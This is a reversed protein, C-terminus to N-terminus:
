DNKKVEGMLRGFFWNLFVQRGKINLHVGDTVHSLPLNSPFRWVDISYRAELEALNATLQKKFEAPFIDMLVKSHGIDLLIIRTGHARAAKFFEEYVEPMQPPFLTRQKMMEIRKKVKKPKTSADDTYDVGRESNHLIIEM